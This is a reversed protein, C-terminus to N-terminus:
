IGPRAMVPECEALRFRIGQNDHPNLTLLSGYLEIATETDENALYWAGLAAIARMYPRTATVGWYAFDDQAAAVPEWLQRGTEVAKALHAYQADNEKAHEALFLHAEICGPDNMLAILAFRVKDRSVSEKEMRDITPQAPSEVVHFWDGGVKSTAPQYRWDLGVMLNTGLANCGAIM